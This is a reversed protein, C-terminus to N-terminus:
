IEREIFKVKEIVFKLFREADKQCSISGEQIEELLNQSQEKLLQEEAENKKNTVIRKINAVEHKMDEITLNNYLEKNTKTM